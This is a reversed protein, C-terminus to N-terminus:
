LTSYSILERSRTPIKFKPLDKWEQFEWRWSKQWFWFSLFQSRLKGQHVQGYNDLCIRFILTHTHLDLTYWWKILLLRSNIKYCKFEKKDSFAPQLLFLLGYNKWDTEKVCRWNGTYFCLKIEFKHKWVLVSLINYM